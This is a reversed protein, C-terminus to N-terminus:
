FPESEWTDGKEEEVRLERLKHIKQMKLLFPFKTEIEFLEDQILEYDILKNKQANKFTM